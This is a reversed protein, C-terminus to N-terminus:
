IQSRIELDSYNVRSESNLQKRLVNSSIFKLIQEATTPTKM